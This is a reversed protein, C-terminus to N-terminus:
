RRTRLSAWSRSPRKSSAADLEGNKDTDFKDFAARVKPEAPPPPPKVYSPYCLAAVATQLPAGTELSEHSWEVAM